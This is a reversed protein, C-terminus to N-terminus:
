SKGKKNTSANEKGETSQFVFKFRIRKDNKDAAANTIKVDTFLPSSEIATKMKDVSDYTDTNGSLVMRGDNFVLRSIEVNIIDPIRSSLEFFLDMIKNDATFRNEINSSGGSKELAQRVQIKMQMYPDVITPTDPFTEKFIATAQQDMDTSKNELASIKMYEGAVVMFFCILILLGMTLLQAMHKAVFAGQGNNNCCFNLCEPRGICRAAAFANLYEHSPSEFVVEHNELLQSVPTLDECLVPASLVKELRAELDDDSNRDGQRTDSWIIHCGLLPHIIGLRHRFLMLTRAVEMAVGANNKDTGMVISRLGVIVKDLVGNIVLCHPKLEVMLYFGKGPLSDLFLRAALYGASSILVPTIGRKELPKRLADVMDISLSATLFTHNDCQSIGTFIFDNVHSEDPLPLMADLELPLVQGIKWRSRFPLDMHRFFPMSAPIAVVARSCATLEVRQALKELVGDLSSEGPLQDGAAGDGLPNMDLTLANIVVLGKVSPKLVLASVRWSFPTIDGKELDNLGDMDPVAYAPGQTDKIELALLHGKM